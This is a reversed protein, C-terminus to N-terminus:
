DDSQIQFAHEDRLDPDGDGLFGADLFETAGGAILWVVVLQHLTAQLDEVGVAEFKGIDLLDDAREVRERTGPLKEVFQACGGRRPKTGCVGGPVVPGMTVKACLRSVSILRRSSAARIVTRTAGQHIRIDGESYLSMRSM